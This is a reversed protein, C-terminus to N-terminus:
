PADKPPLLPKPLPILDVTKSQGGLVSPDLVGGGTPDGGPTVGHTVARVNAGDIDAAEVDPAFTQSRGGQPAGKKIESQADAAKVALGPSYPLVFARPEGSPINNEDVAEVWLHIAGPLGRSPNPEVVRSWLLQFREPVATASSWGLLGQTWFFVGINLSAMVVIAALKAARPLSLRALVILLLAGLAAYAITLLAVHTQLTMALGQEM